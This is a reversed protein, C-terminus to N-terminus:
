ITMKCLLLHYIGKWVCPWAIYNHLPYPTDSQLHWETECNIFEDANILVNGPPLRLHGCSTVFEIGDEFACPWSTDWPSVSAVTAIEYGNLSVQGGSAGGAVPHKQPAELDLEELFVM